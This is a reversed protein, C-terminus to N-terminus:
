QEHLTGSVVTSDSGDYVNKLKVNSFSINLKGGATISVTVTGITGQSGASYYYTSGGSTVNLVCQSSDLDNSYTITGEDIVNFTGNAIPKYRFSVDAENGSSDHAELDMILPNPNFYTTDATYSKGLISWQSKSTSPNSGNKKCGFFICTTIAFAILLYKNM